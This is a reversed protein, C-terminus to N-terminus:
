LRPARTKIIWFAVVILLVTIVVLGLDYVFEM